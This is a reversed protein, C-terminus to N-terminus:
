LRSAHKENNYVMFTLIISLALEIALLWVRSIIAILALYEVPYQLSGIIVFSSERVGVGSPTVLSLFGIIWAGSYSALITITDHLDGKGLSLLLAHWAATYFLWSSAHILCCKTTVDRDPAELKYDKIQNLKPTIEVLKNLINYPLRNSWAISLLALFLLFIISSYIFDLNCVFFAIFFSFSGTLSLITQELNAQIVERKNAKELSNHNIQYVVGWIRGPLNKVIQSNFFISCSQLKTLRLQKRNILIHYIAGNHALSLTGIALSVLLFIPSANSITSWIVDPNRSFISIIWILCAFVLTWKLIRKLHASM